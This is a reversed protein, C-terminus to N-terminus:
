VNSQVRYVAASDRRKQPVMHFFLIGRRVGLRSSGGTELLHALLSSLKARRPTDMGWGPPSMRTETRNDLSLKHLKLCGRSEQLNRQPQLFLLLGVIKQLPPQLAFFTEQPTYSLVLLGHDPFLNPHKEKNRSESM